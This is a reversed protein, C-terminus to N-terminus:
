SLPWVNTRTPHSFRSTGPRWHVIRNFCNKLSYKFVVSAWHFAYAFHGHGAYRGDCLLMIIVTMAM